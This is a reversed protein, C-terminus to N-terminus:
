NHWSERGVAPRGFANCVLLNELSTFNTNPFKAKLKAIDLKKFIYGITKIEGDLMRVKITTVLNRFNSPPQKLKEM